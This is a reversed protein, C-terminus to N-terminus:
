KDEKEKYEGCWDDNKMKPSHFRIWRKDTFIQPPYRRCLYCSKDNALKAFKCNECKEEKGSM